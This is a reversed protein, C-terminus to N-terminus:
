KKLGREAMRLRIDWTQLSLLRIQRAQEDLGLDGNVYSRFAPEVANYLKRDAKVYEAHPSVCSALPFFPLAMMAAMLLKKKM